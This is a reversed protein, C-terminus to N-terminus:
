EGVVDEISITYRSRIIADSKGKTGYSMEIDQDIYKQAVDMSTYIGLVSSDDWCRYEVLYVKM